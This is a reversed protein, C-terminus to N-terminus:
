GGGWEGGGRMEVDRHIYIYIYLQTQTQIYTHKYIYVCLSLGLQVCHLGTVVRGYIEAGVPFFHTCVVVPQEMEGLGTTCLANRRLSVADLCRSLSFFSVCGWGWGVWVCVCLPIVRGVSVLVRLLGSLLSQGHVGVGFLLFYTNILSQEMGGYFGWEYVSCAVSLVNNTNLM